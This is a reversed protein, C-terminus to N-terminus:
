FGCFRRFIVKINKSQWSFGASKRAIVLLSRNWAFAVKYREVTKALSHLSRLLGYFGEGSSSHWNGKWEEGRM